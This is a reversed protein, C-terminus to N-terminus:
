RPTWAIWCNRRGIWTRGASASKGEAPPATSWRCGTPTPRTAGSRSSPTWNPTATSRASITAPGAPWGWWCRPRRPTPWGGVAVSAPAFRSRCGTWGSGCAPDIAPGVTSGSGLRRPPSLGPPPPPAVSIQEGARGPAVPPKDARAGNPMPQGAPPSTLGTLGPPWAPTYNSPAAQGGAPPVQAVPGPPVPPMFEFLGTSAAPFAPSAPALPPRDARTGSPVPPALPVGAQQGAAPPVWAGPPPPPLPIHGVLDGPSALSRGCDPYPCVAASDAIERQCYRCRNM